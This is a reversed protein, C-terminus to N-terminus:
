LKTFFVQILNFLLNLFSNGFGYKVLCLTWFTICFIKLRCKCVMHSAEDEAPYEYNELENINMQLSAIEPEFKIIRDHREKLTKDHEKLTGQMQVLEAEFESKKKSLKKLEEKFYSHM